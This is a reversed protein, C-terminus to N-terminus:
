LLRNSRKEKGDNLREQWNSLWSIDKKVMIDAVENKDLENPVYQLLNKIISYRTIDPIILVLILWLSVVLLALFWKTLVLMFFINIGVLIPISVIKVFIIKNLQTM